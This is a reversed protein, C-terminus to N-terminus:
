NFHKINLVDEGFRNYYVLINNNFDVLEKFFNNCTTCLPLKINSGLQAWNNNYNNYCVIQNLGDDNYILEQNVVILKNSDSSFEIFSSWGKKGNQATYNITITNNYQEWNASVSNFAFTKIYSPAIRNTGTLPNISTSIAIKTGDDNLDITEGWQLNSVGDISGNLIWTNLNKKYILVKGFGSNYNPLSLAIVDGISNVSLRNAANISVQPTIQITSWSTGNNNMIDITGSTHNVIFLNNLFDDNYIGSINQISNISLTQNLVWAGNLYIFIKIENNNNSAYIKQGDNSIGIYGGLHENAIGNIIQGYQFINGNEYKIIRIEGAQSTTQQGSTNYISNSSNSQIIYKGDKSISMRSPSWNLTQYEIISNSFVANSGVSSNSNGAPGQPGPVGQVGNCVYKTLTADIETSDLINNNNTDLGVEIKVGGATCNTGAVETTTKILSKIGDLGNAGAQGSAGILSTLWQQETGTFGNNVAVQYASIGNIGNAGTAGNAGAVGIPGQPGTAGAIGQPGQAGTPGQPGAPGAPGSPGPTGANAAYLAFPVYTFPENSLFTYDSCNALIDLEVKLNKATSNWLIGNFNTAYGGVQTGSGILHNVVGYRDTTIVIKEAYETVNNSDIISFLLCITKNSLPFKQNNAGPLQQGTPSYIVAQYNIGNTQSFLPFTVFLLFFLLKKM